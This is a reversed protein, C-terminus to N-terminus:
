TILNPLLDYFYYLRGLIYTRKQWLYDDPHKDIDATDFSTDVQVGERYQTLPADETGTGDTDAYIHFAHVFQSAQPGDDYVEVYGDLYFILCLEM